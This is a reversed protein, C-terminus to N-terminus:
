SCRTTRPGPRRSCTTPSSSSPTTRSSSWMLEEIQLTSRPDLASCPEDMLIVEPSPPSRARSACGNSSAARSRWARSSSSTRSTTGSRPAASAREVLEDLNGKLRQGRARLRRQRLDVQPVPQAEPVGHRDAPPGRGPRRGPRVPGRRPVADPGRRPRRPGPREHPQHEAAAHVQRLRVARHAGHDSPSSRSPSTRCRASRATTSTCTRFRIVPEVADPKEAAPATTVPRPAHVGDTPPAAPRVETTMATTEETAVPTPRNPSTMPRRAVSDAM